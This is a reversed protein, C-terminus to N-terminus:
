VKTGIHEDIDKQGQKMKDQHIATIEKDTMTEHKIQLEEEKDKNSKRKKKKKNTKPPARQKAATTNSKTGHKKKM